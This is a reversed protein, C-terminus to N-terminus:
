KAKRRRAMAMLGIAGALLPAAAPLPVPTNAGPPLLSATVLNQFNTGTPLNAFLGANQSNDQLFTLSYKEVDTYTTATNLFGTATASIAAADIGFGAAQFVGSTISFDDDYAVEWLAMQFAAADVADNVDVSAFNADFMTQARAVGGAAFSSNSFPTTTPVYDYTLTSTLSHDLDFCWAIFEAVGDDMIFGTAATTGFSAGDYLSVGVAVSLSSTPGVFDLPAAHAATITALGFFGALTLTRM